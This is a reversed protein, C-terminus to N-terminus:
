EVALFRSAPRPESSSLVPIAPQEANAVPSNPHEDTMVRIFVQHHGLTILIYQHQQSKLGKRNTAPAGIRQFKVTKFAKHDIYLPPFRKKKELCFFISHHMSMFRHTSLHVKYSSISSPLPRPIYCMDDCYLLLLRGPWSSPM